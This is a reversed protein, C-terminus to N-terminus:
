TAQRTLEKFGAKMEATMDKIAQKVEGVMKDTGDHREELRAVQRELGRIGVNMEKIDREHKEEVTQRNLKLHEIKGDIVDGPLFREMRTQVERIDGEIERFRDEESKRNSRVEGLIENQRERADAENERRVKRQNMMITILGVILTALIAVGQLTFTTDGRADAGLARAPAETAVTAAASFLVLKVASM